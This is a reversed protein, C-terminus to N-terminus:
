VRHYGAPAQREMADAIRRIDRVVVAVLQAIATTAPDNDAAAATLFGDVVQGLEDQEM